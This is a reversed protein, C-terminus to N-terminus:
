RIEGLVSNVIEEQGEVYGMTELRVTIQTKQVQSLENWKHIIITIPPYGQIDYSIQNGNPYLFDDLVGVPSTGLFFYKQTEQVQARAVILVGTILLISSIIAITTIEIKNLKEGGM